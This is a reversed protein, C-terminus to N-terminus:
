EVVFRAADGNVEFGARDDAFVYPVPAPISESNTGFLYPLSMLSAPRPLWATVQRGHHRRLLSKLATARKSLLNACALLRL